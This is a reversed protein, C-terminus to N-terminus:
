LFLRLTELEDKLSGKGAFSHWQKGDLRVELGPEICLLHLWIESHYKKAYLEEVNIDVENMRAILFMLQWEYFDEENDVRMRVLDNESEDFWSVIHPCEADVLSFSISAAIQM